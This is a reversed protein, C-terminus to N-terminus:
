TNRGTKASASPASCISAVFQHTFIPLTCLVPNIHFSHCSSLTVGLRAFKLALLRGIGSGAGTILVIEGAVNPPSGLGGGGVM